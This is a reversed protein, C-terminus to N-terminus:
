FSCAFISRRVLAYGRQPVHERCVATVPPLRRIGLDYWVIDQVYLSRYRLPSIRAIGYVENNATTACSEGLLINRRLYVVKGRTEIGSMREVWTSRPTKRSM